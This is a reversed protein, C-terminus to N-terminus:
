FVLRFGLQLTRPAFALNTSANPLGYRPSSRDTVYSGYNSRDFMNFMELIGDLHARGFLPVRQQLRVDVRHIPDRVFSNRPVISGDACLRQTGGRGFGRRDGGCITDQREGSGFFYVGSAQFGRGVQWIGNFVARHRQDTVALGYEAGIDPAVAFPVLGLGAIPQAPEDNEIRSLTYNASAQWRDSFRKTFTTQLGHYDSRGNFAYYGVLGFEPYPLRARNPGNAAYPYNLGTAADYGLNVQDHLVKEDRSRNYVYDMEIAMDNGLQRQFGFSSQWSNTLAALEPPPALEEFDRFLCPAAGAFNRARWSDFVARNVDCVRQLATQYDPAPGNFPNVAFDPRGDNDVALFVTTNARTSHTWASAIIDTYYTGAGGRLVTRDNLQYAFGLRPQLNDADQPRGGVMWPLFEVQNNFADWILDYRLGINVTLRDTFKWDDQVWGAYKPQTFRVPFSDSVGVVYRRTISSLAAINWTDVNFPDPFLAEINAPIAGARADIRGMCSTCNGSVKKDWLFEGGVKLDHRGKANYSWTFDDRVSWIDQTWYRPWNNNGAINFGNFQIRPHGNTIGRSALPHRSWTTLNRHEFKFGAYGVKIENLARQGLVQTFQTVLNTTKERASGSGAPHDSGLQSFPEFWTTMNGKIMIRNQPSLQHDLRLGGLKTTTKGNLTVNFAPWATNAISSQPLRDYEYNGFFHLRDRLIPGGVATSYQQNEMPVVVGLVPDDANWDSDRFYGGFSGSLSNSGSRTVANVQVGSSRGQTADFRNSIFQFEAIADRSFRPQGGPGLNSTVQQGDMNLQYERVDGRDQVPVSGMATTRNGPALLALSTWDRGQVPLEEMQRPDINAGITSSTTNILPAEGTVTVTEQITSPSMQINVTAAQGVLLQVGSRTVTSFGPLEVTIQYAGIRVPVRYVGRADTVATFRNGSAEHVATVTVGPLVGGTSDTVTGNIAAEQASSTVPYALLAAIVLTRGLNAATMFGEQRKL